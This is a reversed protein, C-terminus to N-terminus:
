ALRKKYLGMGMLGLLGTGLLLVSSPEPATVPLKPTLNGKTLPTKITGIPTLTTKDGTIAGGNYGILTKVPLALNLKNGISDITSVDVTLSISDISADSSTATFTSSTDTTFM